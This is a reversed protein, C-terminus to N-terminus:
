RSLEAWISLAVLFVWIALCVLFVDRAWPALWIAHGNTHYIVIKL